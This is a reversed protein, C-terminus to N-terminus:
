RLRLKTTINDMLNLYKRLLKLASTFMSDTWSIQKSDRIDIILDIGIVDYTWIVHVHALYEANM